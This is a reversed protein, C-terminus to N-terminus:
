AQLPQTVQGLASLRGKERKREKMGMSEQPLLQERQPRGTGWGARPPLSADVVERAPSLLESDLGPVQSFHVRPLLSLRPTRMGARGRLLATPPHPHSGCGRGSGGRFPRSHQSLGSRTGM